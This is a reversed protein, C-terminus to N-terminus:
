PQAELLGLSDFTAIQNAGTSRAHALARAAQEAVDDYRETGLGYTIGVSLGPHLETGAISIPESVALRIRRATQHAVQDNPVSEAVIAFRDEGDYMLLDEHRLAHSLRAATADILTKAADTGLQQLVDDYGDIGCMFVALPVRTRQARRQSTDFQNEFTFRSPLSDLVGGAGTTPTSMPNAGQAYLRRRESTRNEAVIFLGGSDGGDRTRSASIALQRVTGAWDTAAIAARGVTRESTAVDKLVATVREPRETGLAQAFRQGILIEARYGALDALAHSCWLITTEADTVAVPLDILGLVRLIGDVGGATSEPTTALHPTSEPAPVPANTEIPEPQVTTM